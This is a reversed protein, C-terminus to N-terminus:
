RGMFHARLHRVTPNIISPDGAELVERYRRPSVGYVSKFSNSFHYQNAFGTASAVEKISMGTRSLLTAARELRALRFAEKPGVNLHRKFLRCLHEPTVRAARALENLTPVRLLTQELSTHMLDLAREVAEPLREHPESPLAGAGSIFLKLMLELADRYPLTTKQGRQWTLCFSYLSKLLDDAALSRMIPWESQDPWGARPADFEFHLYGHRARGRPSWDYRDRM